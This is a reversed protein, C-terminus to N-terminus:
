LYRVLIMAIPLIGSLFRDGGALLLEAVAVHNTFCSCKTYKHLAHKITCTNDNRYMIPIIQSM